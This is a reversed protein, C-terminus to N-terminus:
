RGKQNEARNRSIGSAETELASMPTKHSCSANLAAPHASMDLTHVFASVSGRLLFPNVGDLLGFLCQNALIYM